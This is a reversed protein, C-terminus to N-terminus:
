NEEILRRRDEQSDATEARVTESLRVFTQQMDYRRDESGRFLDKHAFVDRRMDALVEAKEQLAFVQTRLHEIEVEKESLGRVLDRDLVV